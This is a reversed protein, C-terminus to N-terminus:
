FPFSHSCLLVFHCYATLAPSTKHRGTNLKHPSSPLTADATHACRWAAEHGQSQARLEPQSILPGPPHAPGLATGDDMLGPISSFRSPLDRNAAGGDWGSILTDQWAHLADWVERTRTFIEGRM